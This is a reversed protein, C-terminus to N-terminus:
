SEDREVMHEAKFKLADVIEQFVRRDGVAWDNVDIYGDEIICDALQKLQEANM